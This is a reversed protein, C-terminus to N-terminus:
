SHRPEPAGRDRACAGRGSALACCCVARRYGHKSQNAHDTELLAPPKSPKGRAKPKKSPAQSKSTKKRACFERANVPRPEYRRWLAEREREWAGAQRRLLATACCRLLLVCHKRCSACRKREWVQALHFLIKTSVMAHVREDLHDHRARERAQM